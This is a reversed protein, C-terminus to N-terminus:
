DKKARMEVIYERYIEYLQLKKEFVKITFEADEVLEKDINKGSDKYDKLHSVLSDYEIRSYNPNSFSASDSLAWNSNQLTNRLSKKAGKRVLVDGNPYKREWALKIRLVDEKEYEQASGEFSETYDNLDGLFEFKNFNYDTLEPSTNYYYDFYAKSIVYSGSEKFAEFKEVLKDIPGYLNQIKYTDVMHVKDTKENYVPIFIGYHQNYPDRWDIRDSVGAVDAPYAKYVGGFVVKDLFKNM